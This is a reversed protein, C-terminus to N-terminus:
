FLNILKDEYILFKILNSKKKEILSKKMSSTNTTSLTM